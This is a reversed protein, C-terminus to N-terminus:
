KSSRRRKSCRSRISQRRSVCYRLLNGLLM